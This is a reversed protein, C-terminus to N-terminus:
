SLKGLAELARRVREDGRPDPGTFSDRAPYGLTIALADPPSGDAPDLNVV